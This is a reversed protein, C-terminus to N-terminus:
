SALQCSCGMGVVFLAIEWIGLPFGALKSCRGTRYLRCTELRPGIIPLPRLPTSCLAARFAASSLPLAAEAPSAPSAPPASAAACEVDRGWAVNRVREDLSPCPQLLLRSAGKERGSKSLPYPGPVRASMGSSPGLFHWQFSHLPFFPMQRQSNARENASTHFSPSLRRSSVFLADPM